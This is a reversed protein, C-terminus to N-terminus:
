NPVGASSTAEAEIWDGPWRRALRDLASRSFTASSWGRAAEMQDARVSALRSGSEVIVVPVSLSLVPLMEVTGFLAIVIIGEVGQRILREIADGVTEITVAEATAVSVFYGAGQAAHEMGVLTSALGYLTTDFSVV